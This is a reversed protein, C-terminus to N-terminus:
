RYRVKGNIAYARGGRIDNEIRENTKYANDVLNRIFNHLQEDSMENLGVRDMLEEIVQYKVHTTWESENVMRGYLKMVRDYTPKDNEFLNIWRTVYKNYNELRQRSEAGRLTSTPYSMIELIDNNIKGLQETTLGTVSLNELGKDILATRAPTQGYKKEVREIRKVLANYNKRVMSAVDMRAQSWKKKRAM